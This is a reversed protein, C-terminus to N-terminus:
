HNWKRKHFTTTIWLIWCLFGLFPLEISGRNLNWSSMVDWGHMMTESLLSWSLLSVILSSVILIKDEHLLSLIRKKSRTKDLVPDQILNDV